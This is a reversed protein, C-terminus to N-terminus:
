PILYADDVIIRCNRASLSTLIALDKKIDLQNNSLDLYKLNKLEHFNRPLRILNNHSLDLSELNSLECIEDPLIYLQNRQFNLSKLEKLEGIWHPIEALQNDGASFITLQNFLVIIDPIETLNLYHLGLETVKGEFHRFGFNQTTTKVSPIPTKINKELYVLYDHDDKILPQNQYFLAWESIDEPEEYIESPDVELAEYRSFDEKQPRKMEPKKLKDLMRACSDEFSLMNEIVMLNDFIEEQSLHSNIALGENSVEKWYFAKPKDISCGQNYLKKLALFTDQLHIQNSGISLFRLEHLNDFGNPFYQIQNYSLDLEELNVLSPISEPLVSIKNDELNLIRLHKLKGIKPSITTIQMHALNLEELESLNCLYDPIEDLNKYNIGIKSVRKHKVAFGSVFNKNPSNILPYNILKEFRILIEIDSDKILVNHYKKYCSFELEEIERQEEKRKLNTKVKQLYKEIENVNRIIISKNEVDYDIIRSSQTLRKFFEPESLNLIECIISIEQTSTNQFIIGLQEIFDTLSM